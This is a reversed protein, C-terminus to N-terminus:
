PLEERRVAFDVIADIAPVMAAFLPVIEATTVSTPKYDAQIRKNKLEAVRRFTAEDIVNGSAVFAAHFTDLVVRHENTAPARFGTVHHLCGLMAQYMAYYLRNTAANVQGRALSDNAAALNERAKALFQAAYSKM